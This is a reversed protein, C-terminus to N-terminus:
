LFRGKFIELGVKCCCGEKYKFLYGVLKLGAPYKFM